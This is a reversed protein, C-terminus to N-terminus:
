KPKPKSRLRLAPEEMATSSRNCETNIHVSVSDPKSSSWVHLNDTVDHSKNNGIYYSQEINENHVLGRNDRM